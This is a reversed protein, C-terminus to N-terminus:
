FQDFCLSDKNKLHKNRGQLKFQVVVVVVLDNEVLHLQSCHDQSAMINSQTLNLSLGDIESDRKITQSITTKKSGM